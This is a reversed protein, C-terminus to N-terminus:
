QFIWNRYPLLRISVDYAKYLFMAFYLSYALVVGCTFFIRQKKDSIKVLVAPILFLNSVNLYFGVRSIEPIFSCFTYVILAGLNLYFYFLNERSNKIATKYYILCLLLIAAAKAINILSTEGTDFASGEYFPYFFFIIRRYFDQFVLFTVCVLTLLALHWKKWKISALIYLPIVILVSKHFCAAFLVWLIMPLFRRNRAFKMVYLAISLAFYYRVSGMGSFYYGATMFLFISIVFFESQEYIAKVMFGVTGLAFIGFVTLYSAKGVGFFYQVIRVVLNFGIETSVYRDQSILSFISSYGWYDNGVAIRCASVSFLLLFIAAVLVYNSMQARSVMNSQVTVTNNVFYGLIVVLITLGIYLVM